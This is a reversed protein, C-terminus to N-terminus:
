DIVSRNGGCCGRLLSRPKNDIFEKDTIGRGNGQAHGGQHVQTKWEVPGFDFDDIRLEM